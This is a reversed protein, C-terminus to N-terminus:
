VKGPPLESLKIVQIPGQIAQQEVHEVISILQESGLPIIMADIEVKVQTAAEGPNGYIPDIKIYPRRGYIGGTQGIVEYTTVTGPEDGVAGESEVILRVRRVRGM